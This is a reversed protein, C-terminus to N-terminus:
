MIDSDNGVMCEICSYESKKLCRMLINQDASGVIIMAILQKNNNNKVTESHQNEKHLSCLFNGTTLECSGSELKGIITDTM